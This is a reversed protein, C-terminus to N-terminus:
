AFGKQASGYMNTGDCMFTLIDIANAATSLVPAAGSVWKYNAGYSLTRSGTADQKVILVYHQGPQLYVPNDLTRNGGLTVVGYPAVILNWSINAADTLVGPQQAIARGTMIWNFNDYSYISNEDNIWLTMGELPAIFKWSQDYFALKNAQGTWVGTPSGGVIYLDGSAPSGPPTNTSRSKAGNQLLADIRIFAANVTVEKQAQSQEVLTIGIHNTTTM